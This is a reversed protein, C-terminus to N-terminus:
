VTPWQHIADLVEDQQSESLKAYLPLRVLCDSVSETVPCDGVRGGFKRGMESLHLPPYHFATLIGNQKMHEIFAQSRAPNPMLLYYMHFPQESASPIVPTRAGHKAAWSELQADYRSWIHRRKAQIQTREELQACLYAALIESLLYSSGVDIWTYKDVQGLFFRNRNTGKERIIEAREIFKPDNILISGGEGCTFNKTEHFSQTAMCGFSGLPRGKYKGFLGHANDEVVPIGHREAIEMITDMECAVGAYHVVVIAKTKRTILAEIRNEDINLTDPRIDVFRPVAGRLVFANATSVFAFSPVIFEDGPRLDLLLGCMELAQSCSTTLLAKLVNLEKELLAHCRATFRGDGSIHGSQVAESIYRLENGTLSASNFPIRYTM